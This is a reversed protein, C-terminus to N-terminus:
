SAVAPKAKASVSKGLRIFYKEFYTYSYFSLVLTIAITLAIHIIPNASLYDAAAFRILGYIIPHILYVSFSIEGLTRLITKIFGPLFDFDCKYFLFCLAIVYGSLILRNFGTVLQVPEGTVPYFTILSCLFVIGLVAPWGFKKMNREIAGLGIGAAFYFMQGLPNVYEAWQKGLYVNPDLVKFTFYILILFSLAVFGWFLGKKFKAMWILFPFLIYFFLEDGISWAGNAIFTEPKIAGPIITINAIIKKVSLMQPYVIVLTLATAMWLLPVIRFFRKIYFEVLVPKSFVFGRIHVMYLTLGSLVYFIAVGYIKIKALVSSADAEGYTFLHMHYIMIGFAALGRLYDLSDIRNIAPTTNNTM